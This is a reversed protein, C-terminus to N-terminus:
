VNHLPTVRPEGLLMVIDPRNKFASRYVPKGRKLLELEITEARGILRDRGGKSWHGDPSSRIERMISAFRGGDPSRAHLFMNLATAYFSHIRAYFRAQPASWVLPSVDLYNGRVVSRDLLRHRWCYEHLKTQPYPWFLSFRVADARLAAAFRFTAWVDPMGETPIGLMIFFLTNVGATRLARVAAAIQDKREPRCLVKRRIRESGSEVGMRVMYVGADACRRATDEDIQVATSNFVLPTKFEATYADLFGHLWARDALFMDDNFSFVKIDSGFRAHYERIEAIVDAVTRRRFAPPKPPAGSDATSREIRRLVPNQCYRCAYLCGRGALSEAYGLKLKIIRRHDFLSLDIPHPAKSLEVPPLGAGTLWRGAHRHWFGPIPRGITGQFWTELFGGLRGDDAEGVAIADVDPWASVEAACITSHIGGCIVLASPLLKKSLHAVERAAWAHNTGFSLGIVDPARVRIDASVRDLDYPMGIAENLHLLDVQHGASKLERSLVALGYSFGVPTDFNFWVM